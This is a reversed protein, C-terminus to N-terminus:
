KQSTNFLKIKECQNNSKFLTSDESSAFARAAAFFYARPYYSACMSASFFRRTLM